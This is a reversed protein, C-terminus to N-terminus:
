EAVSVSDSMKTCVTVFNKPGSVGIGYDKDATYYAQLAALSKFEEAFDLPCSIYLKDDSIKLAIAYFNGAPTYDTGSGEAVQCFVLTYGTTETVTSSSVVNYIVKSMGDNIKDQEVKYECHEWDNNEWVAVVEKSVGNVAPLYSVAPTKKENDDDQACSAFGFIFVSAFILAAFRRVKKVNNLM